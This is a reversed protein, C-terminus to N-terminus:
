LGEDPVLKEADSEIPIEIRIGKDCSYSAPQARGYRFQDKREDKTLIRRSVIKKAVAFALIHVTGRRGNNYLLLDAFEGNEIVFKKRQM